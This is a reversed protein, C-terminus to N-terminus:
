DSSKQLQQLLDTIVHDKDRWYTASDRGDNRRKVENYRARAAPDRRLLDRLAVLHDDESGVVMVQVGFPLPGSDDDKFSAFTPTWNERQAEAYGAHLAGVVQPFNAAPVRLAVDVDGKTVTGPIATSGVHEVAVGPALNHLKPMQRTLVLKVQGQLEEMTKLHIHAM